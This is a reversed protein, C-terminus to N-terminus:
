NVISVETALTTTNVAMMICITSNIIHVLISHIDSLNRLKTGSNTCSNTNRVVFSHIVILDFFSLENLSPLHITNRCVTILNAM